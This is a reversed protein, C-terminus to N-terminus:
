INSNSNEITTAKIVKRKESRVFGFYLKNINKPLKAVTITIPKLVKKNLDSSMGLERIQERTKGFYKTQYMM